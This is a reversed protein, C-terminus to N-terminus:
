YPTEQFSWDIRDIGGDLGGSGSDVARGRFGFAMAVTDPPLITNRKFTFKDIARGYGITLLPRSALIRGAEDIFVLELFFHNLTSFGTKLSSAFDVAGTIALNNKRLEYRYQLTLDHSIWKAENTGDGPLAIRKELPVIRGVGSLGPMAQCAFFWIGAFAVATFRLFNMHRNILDIM